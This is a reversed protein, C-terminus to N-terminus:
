TNITPHLCCARNQLTFQSKAEFIGVAGDCFGAYVLVGDCSYVAASIPAPLTDRPSWLCLCKLEWDYIALQSEHVVLCNTNNSHFQVRTDGVLPGSWNAPNQIFRSKLKEWGGKFGWVCIQTDAGSSVLGNMAQPFALGTVMKNHSRFEIKVERANFNCIQISSDDM